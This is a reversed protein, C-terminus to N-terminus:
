RQIAVNVFAQGPRQKGVRLISTPPQIRQQGEHSTSRTRAPFESV